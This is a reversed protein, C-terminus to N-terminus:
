TNGNGAFNAVKTRGHEVSKASVLWKKLRQIWYKSAIIKQRCHKKSAINEQQFHKKCAINKNAITKKAPLSKKNAIIKQQCHKRAPLSKKAPFSKQNAINERQCHKCWINEKAPRTQRLAALRPFVAVFLLDLWLQSLLFPLLICKKCRLIDNNVQDDDDGAVAYDDTYDKEDVAKEYEWILEDWGRWWWLLWCEVYDDDIDDDDDDDDDHDPSQHVASLDWCWSTVHIEGGHLSGSM